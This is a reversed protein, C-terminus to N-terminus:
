DVMVSGRRWEISNLGQFPNLEDIDLDMEAGAKRDRARLSTSRYERSSKSCLKELRVV